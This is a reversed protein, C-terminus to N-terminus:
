GFNGLIGGLIVQVVVQEYGSVFGEYQYIMGFNSFIQIKVAFPGFYGWNKTSKSVAKRLWQLLLKM